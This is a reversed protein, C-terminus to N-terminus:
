EGLVDVRAVVRESGKNFRQIGTEVMKPNSNKFNTVNAFKYVQTKNVTVTSEPLFIATLIIQIICFLLIIKAILPQTSTPTQTISAVAAGEIEVGDSSM